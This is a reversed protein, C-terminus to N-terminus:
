PLNKATIRILETLDDQDLDLSDILADFGPQAAFDMEAPNPIDMREVIKEALAECLLMVNM